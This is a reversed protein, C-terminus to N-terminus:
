SNKFMDKQYFYKVNTSGTLDLDFINLSTTNEFFKEMTVEKLELNDRAEINVISVNLLRYHGTDQHLILNELKNESLDLKINDINQLLFIPYSIHLYPSTMNVLNNKIYLEFKELNPCRLYINEM